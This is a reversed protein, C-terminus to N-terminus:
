KFAKNYEDIIIKQFYRNLFDDKLDESLLAAKETIMNYATQIYKKDELLIYLDLLTHAGLLRVETYNQTQMYKNIVDLIKKNNITNVSNKSILSSLISIDFDYWDNKLGREKAMNLSQNIYDTAKDYSKLYYYSRAIYQLTFIQGVIENELKQYKLGEEANAIYKNFEGKKYNYRAQQGFAHTTWYENNTELCLTITKNILEIAKPLNEIYSYFNSLKYYAEIEKKVEKNEKSMELAIEAYEISTDWYKFATKAKERTAKADYLNAFDLYSGIIESIDELSQNIKMKENLAKEAEKYDHYTYLKKYFINGLCRTQCLKDNVERAIELAQYWYTLAQDFDKMMAYTNGIWRKAVGMMQLNNQEKAIKFASNFIETIENFSKEEEKNLIVATNRWRSIKRSLLIYHINGLLIRAEVLNSDLEIAKEALNISLSKENSYYTDLDAKQARLYYEYAEANIAINKSDNLTKIHLSNLIGNQLNNKILPLQNWRKKWRESWVVKENVTDYLEISLQFISDAKWLTGQAIYRVSLEKSLQKNNLNLYDTKEIDKLSIVRIDGSRAIDSILDSSIGYSYFDDEQNGKNEIPIIAISPVQSEKPILSYIGIVAVALLCIAAIIYQQNFWLKKVDKELKATVKTIDSEPLNHSVICYIKINQKVGKLTPQSVFKTEFEPLSSINQEVKGSIAIGGIAAYPEIRSAVNVDDGLVDGDRFTVEGEHIGIRLNLNEHSKTANQIEIGCQVSESVTLFTLLLGDGIEKHLTGNFKKIIPTLIEKQDDLIKLAKSENESSLKTFGVIDTFMIAALKRKINGSM